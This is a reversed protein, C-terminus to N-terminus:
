PLLIIGCDNHVDHKLLQKFCVWDLICWLTCDSDCQHACRRVYRLYCTCTKYVKYLPYIIYCIYFPKYLGVTKKVVVRGKSLFYAKSHVTVSNKYIHTTLFYSNLVFLDCHVGKIYWFHKWRSNQHFCNM